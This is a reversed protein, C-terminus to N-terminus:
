NRGTYISTSEPITRLLVFWNIPIANPAIMSIIRAKIFHACCPETPVTLNSRHRGKAKPPGGWTGSGQGPSGARSTGPGVRGLALVVNTGLYFGHLLAWDQYGGGWCTCPHGIAVVLDQALGGTATPRGGRIKTRHLRAIGCCCDWSEKGGREDKGRGLRGTGSAPSGKARRRASRRSPATATWEKAGL